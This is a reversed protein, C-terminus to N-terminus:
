MSELGQQPDGRGGNLLIQSAAMADHLADVLGELHAMDELALRRDNIKETLWDQLKTGLDELDERIVQLNTLLPDSGGAHSCIDLLFMHIAM